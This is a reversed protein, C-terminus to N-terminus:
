GGCTLQGNINAIDATCQSFNPLITQVWSGNVTECLAVLNGSADVSINQCSQTYSGPPPGLTQPAPYYGAPPAGAGTGIYVYPYPTGPAEIQQYGNGPPLPGDPPIPAVTPPLASTGPLIPVQFTPNPIVLTPNVPVTATAPTAATMTTSKRVLTPGGGTDVVMAPAVGLGRLQPRRMMPAMGRLNQRQQTAYRM